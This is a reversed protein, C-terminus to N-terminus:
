YNFITLKAVSSSNFPNVMKNLNSAVILGVDVTLELLPKTEPNQAVIAVFVQTAQL